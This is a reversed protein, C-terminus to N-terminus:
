VHIVIFEGEGLAHVPMSTDGFSELEERGAQWDVPGRPDNKGYESDYHALFKIPLIGLGDMAQRWDCTWFHRALANSSASSTAVVKGDWIKPIDFQKLWFQILHDDGGHMYVVDSNEIQETFTAPFAMELVPHIGEPFLDFLTNKDKEFKEEWDERPQAFCCILIRPKEGLGSVVEAFFKKARDPYNRMGGSNLVYKTM